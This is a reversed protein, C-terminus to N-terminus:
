DQAVRNALRGRRLEARHGGDPAIENLLVAAPIKTARILAPELAALFTERPTPEVAIVRNVQVTGADGDERRVNDWCQHCEIGRHADGARRPRSCLGDGGEVGRRGSVM